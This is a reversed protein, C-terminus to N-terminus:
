DRLSELRCLFKFMFVLFSLSKRLSALSFLWVLRSRGLRVMTGDFMLTELAGASLV